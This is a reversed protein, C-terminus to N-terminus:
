RWVRVNQYALPSPPNTQFLLPIATKPRWPGEVGHRGLSLFAVTRKRLLNAM